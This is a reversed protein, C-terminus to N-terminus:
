TARGARIRRSSGAASARDTPTVSGKQSSARSAKNASPTGCPSATTSAHLCMAAAESASCSSSRAGSAIPRRLTPLGEVELVDFVMLAVPITPDGHLIRRSLREFSPLGDPGFALLVGDFVGEIPLSAFGPVLETM